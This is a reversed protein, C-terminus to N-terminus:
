RGVIQKMADKHSILSWELFLRRVEERCREIDREVASKPWENTQCGLGFLGMHANCFAIAVSEIADDTQTKKM